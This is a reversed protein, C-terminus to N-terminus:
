AADTNSPTSCDYPHYLDSNIAGCDALLKRTAENDNRSSGESVRFICSRALEDKAVRGFAVVTDGPWLADSVIHAESDDYSLCRGFILMNNNMNPLSTDNGQKGATAPVAVFLLLSMGDIM